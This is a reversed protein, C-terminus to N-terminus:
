QCPLASAEEAYQPFIGVEIMQNVPPERPAWVTVFAM